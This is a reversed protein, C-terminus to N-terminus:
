ESILNPVDINEIFQSVLAEPNEYMRKKLTSIEPPQQVSEYLKQSTSKRVFAGAKLYLVIVHFYMGRFSVTPLMVDDSSQNDLSLRGILDDEIELEPGQNSRSDHSENSKLSRHSNARYRVPNRGDPGMLDFDPASDPVSGLYCDIIEM